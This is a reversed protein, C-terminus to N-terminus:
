VLVLALAAACFMVVKDVNVNFAAAAAAGSIAAAPAAAAGASTATALTSATAADGAISATAASGAAPLGEVALSTQLASSNTTTTAAAGEVAAGGAAAATAFTQGCSVYNINLNDAWAASDTQRAATICSERVVQLQGAAPTCTAVVRSGDVEGSDDFDAEVSTIHVDAVPVACLNTAITMIPESCHSGLSCGLVHVLPLGRAGNYSAVVAQCSGTAASSHQQLTVAWIVTFFEFVHLAADMCVSLPVDLAAGEDFAHAPLNSHKGHNLTSSCNVGAAHLM